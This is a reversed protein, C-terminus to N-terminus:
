DMKDIVAYYFGDMGLKGPLLYVGPDAPHMWPMCPPMSIVADTQAGLWDRVVGEGEQRFISCTSYVLKGGPKLLKWANEILRKQRLSFVSIDQERRLIKIDPHRRVVGSGSCPADLLIRDFGTGDWWLEPKLLDGHCVRAHLKLRALNEHVRKLRDQNVDLAWLDCAGHCRELIHGTKGGPACCADLVRMGPEVALFTAAWQAGGDQISCSGQQFDPLSEVPVGRGLLWAQNMDPMPWASIGQQQLREPIDPDTRYLANLRLFMPPRQNSYSLIAKWEDPWDRRCLDIWWGPFAYYAQTCASMKRRLEKEGRLSQRLVANVLGKAKNGQRIRGCVAVTEHVAAHSPIRMFLIQYVGVWLLARIMPNVKGPHHLLQRTWWELRPQWRLTGYILEQALARNKEDLHLGAEPWLQDLSAGGLVQSVVHAAIYRSDPNSDPM